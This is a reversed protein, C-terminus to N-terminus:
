LITNLDMFDDNFGSRQLAESMDLSVVDSQDVLAAWMQEVVWAAFDVMQDPNMRLREVLARGDEEQLETLKSETEPM